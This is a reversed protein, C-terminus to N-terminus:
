GALQEETIAVQLSFQAYGVAAFPLTHSSKGRDSTKVEAAPGALELLEEQERKYRKSLRPSMRRFLDM